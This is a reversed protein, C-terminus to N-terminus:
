FNDFHKSFHGLEVYLFLLKHEDHEIAQKNQLLEVSQM